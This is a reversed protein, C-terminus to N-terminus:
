KIFRVIGFTNLCILGAILILLSSRGIKSASSDFSNRLPVNFIFAGYSTSTLVGNWTSIELSGNGVPSSSAFNEGCYGPVVLLASESRRLSVVPSQLLV